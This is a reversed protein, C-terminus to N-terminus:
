YKNMKYLFFFHVSLLIKEKDKRHPFMSVLMDSPDDDTATAQDQKHVYLMEADVHTYKSFLNLWIM